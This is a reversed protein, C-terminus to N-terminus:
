KWYKEPIEVSAPGFVAWVLISGQVDSRGNVDMFKKMADKVAKKPNGNSHVTVPHEGEWGSYIRVEIPTERFTDRNNRAAARLDALKQKAKGLEKELEAAVYTKLRNM